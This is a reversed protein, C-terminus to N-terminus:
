ETDIVAILAGLRELVGEVAFGSRFSPVGLGRLTLEFDQRSDRACTPRRRSGTVTRM